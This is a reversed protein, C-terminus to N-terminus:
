RPSRSLILPSEHSASFKTEVYLTESKDGPPGQNHQGLFDKSIESFKKDFDKRQGIRRGREKFFTKNLNTRGKKICLTGSIHKAWM